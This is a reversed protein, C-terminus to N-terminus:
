LGNNQGPSPQRSWTVPAGTLQSSPLFQQGQVQQPQQQGQRMFAQALAALRNPMNSTPDAAGTGAAPSNVLATAAKWGGPDSQSGPIGSSGANGAFWGDFLGM